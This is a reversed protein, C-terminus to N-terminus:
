KEIPPKTRVAAEIGPLADLLVDGVIQLSRASINDLTDGATHWARYDLDIVDVAPVGAELFSRHDDEIAESENLFVGGHGLRAASKWIIDTLWPTSNSDRRIDLDRDAVMDVLVMARIGALSGDKKAQEVYARSGYTHDQGSWEVFAEEGDFFVLEITFPGRRGKLARALELLMATSSGADNAGVFTFERFLKTDYHGGIVIRQTSAGPIRAIINTMRKSGLPTEATFSQLTPSLGAQELQATIYRQAAEGGPSGAVRPGIAVLQRIDEFARGSDFTARMPRHGQAAAAAVATVAVLCAAAFRARM